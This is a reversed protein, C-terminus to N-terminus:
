LTRLHGTLDATFTQREVISDGDLSTPKLASPAPPVRPTATFHM